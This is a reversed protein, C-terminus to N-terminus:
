RGGRGGGGGGGGPGGPRGRQPGLLPNNANNGGPTATGTDIIVNTVIEDGEKLAPNADIVEINTSDSVGLRLRVQKLQKNEWQWAQGRTEVTPLSGFLSDITTAAGAMSPTNAVRGSRNSAAANASQAPAAAANGGNMGGRGGGQGGQGSAGTRGSQDGGRGGGFGGQAQREAMRQQFAAREEPTMAAMREEMRKRREEPTMNPDFGGRGGGGGNFGGGGAANGAQANGGTPANGSAM